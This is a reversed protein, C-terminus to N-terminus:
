SRKVTQGELAGVLAGGKHEIAEVTHLIQEAVQNTTQLEWVPQTNKRITEVANLARVAEALIGRATVLITILLGAALLVVVTAVVIWLRWAAWLEADSM